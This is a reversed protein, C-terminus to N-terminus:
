AVSRSSRSGSPTRSSPSRGRRRTVASASCRGLHEGGRPRCSSARPRSGRPGRRGGGRAAASRRRRGARAARRRRPRRPATGASRRWGRPWGRRHGPARHPPLPRQVRAGVRIAITAIPRSRRSRATRRCRRRRSTRGRGAAPRRRRLVRRTRGPRRWRAAGAATAAPSRGAARPRRRGAARPCAPAAPACGRSRRRRSRWTTAPRPPGPAAAPRRPRRAVRLQAVAEGRQDVRQAVGRVPEAVVVDDLHAPDLRADVVLPQRAAGVRVGVELEAAAPEGVDLPGDLQELHLVGAATAPSRM